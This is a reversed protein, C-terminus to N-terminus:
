TKWTRRSPRNVSRNVRLQDIFDRIGAQTPYGFKITEVAAFWDRDVQQVPARMTEYEALGGTISINNQATTLSKVSTIEKPFSGSHLPFLRSYYILSAINTPIEEGPITIPDGVKLYHGSPSSTIQVIKSGTHPVWANWCGYYLSCVWEWDYYTYDIQVNEVTVGYGPSYGSLVVYGGPLSSPSDIEVGGQGYLGISNLFEVNTQFDSPIAVCVLDISAGNAIQYSGDVPVTQVLVNPGETEGSSFTMLETTSASAIFKNEVEYNIVVGKLAMDSKKQIKLEGINRIESLSVSCKVEDQESLFRITPNAVSYDFLTFVDTHWRLSRLIVESCSLDSQEDSPALATLRTLDAEVYGINLGQAIAYDLVAKIQQGTTLQNGDQDRFLILHSRNYAEPVFKTTQYPTRELGNWADHATVSDTIKNAGYSRKPDEFIEGSFLMKWDDSVSDKGRLDILDGVKFRSSDTPLDVEYKWSLSGASQSIETQDLSLLELDSVPSWTGNICMELIM